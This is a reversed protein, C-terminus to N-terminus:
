RTERAGSSALRRSRERPGATKELSPAPGGEPTEADAGRVLEVQGSAILYEAQEAPIDRVTGHPVTGDGLNIFNVRTRVRPM